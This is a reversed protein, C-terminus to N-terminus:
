TYYALIRIYYALISVKMARQIIDSSTILLPKESTPECQASHFLQLFVFSPNVGSKLPEKKKDKEKEKGDKEQAKSEKLLEAKPKRVPSMVSITYGRDRKQGNSQEEGDAGQRLKENSSLSSSKELTAKHGGDHGFGAKHGDHSLSAKHGDISHRPM